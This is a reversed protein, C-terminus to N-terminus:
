LQLAIAEPIIKSCSSAIKSLSLKLKGDVNLDRIENKLEYLENLKDVKYDCFLRYLVELLGNVKKVKKVVKFDKLGIECLDELSDGIEELTSIINYYIPSKNNEVIGGKNIIRACFDCLKNIKKDSVKKIRELVVKDKNNMADVMDESTNVLTIFIRMLANSFEERNVKSIEKIQVYNKRQTMIEMGVLNDVASSIVDLVTEKEWTNKNIVKETDFVLEIEESGGRYASYITYYILNANLGTLNIRLAEGKKLRQSELLLNSGNETIEIEDGKKIGFAKVWKSPLSVMLTSPGILSVKRKVM